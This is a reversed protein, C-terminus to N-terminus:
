LEINREQEFLEKDEPEDYYHEYDFYRQIDECLKDGIARAEDSRFLAASPRPEWCMSTEGIAEFVKQVLAPPLREYGTFSRSNGWPNGGVHWDVQFKTNTCENELCLKVNDPNMWYPDTPEDYTIEVVLTPM